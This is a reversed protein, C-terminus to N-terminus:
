PIHTAPLTFPVNHKVLKLILNIEFSIKFFNHLYLILNLITQFFYFNIIYIMKIIILFLDKFSL